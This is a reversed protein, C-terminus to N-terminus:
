LECLGDTGLELRNRGGDISLDLAVESTSDIRKPAASALDLDGCLGHGGQRIKKVIHGLDKANLCVLPLCICAGRRSSDSPVRVGGQKGVVSRLGILRCCREHARDRILLQRLQTIVLIVQAAHRRRDNGYQPLITYQLCPPSSAEM